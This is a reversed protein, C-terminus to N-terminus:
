CLCLQFRLEPYYIHGQVTVSYNCEGGNPCAVQHCAKVIVKIKVNDWCAREGSDATTRLWFVLDGSTSVCKCEGGLARYSVPQRVEVKVEWACGGLNCDTCVTGKDIWSTGGGPGEAIVSCDPCGPVVGDLPTCGHGSTGVCTLLVVVLCALRLRIALGDTIM